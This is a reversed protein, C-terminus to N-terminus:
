GYFPIFKTRHWDDMNSFYHVCADDASAIIFYQEEFRGCHCIPKLLNKQILGISLLYDDKELGRLLNHLDFNESIWPEGEHIRRYTLLETTVAAFLHCLRDDRNFAPSTDYRHSCAPSTDYDRSCAPSTDYDHSCASSTDYDHSCSQESYDSYEDNDLDATQAMRLVRRFVEWGIRTPAPWAEMHKVPICDAFEAPTLQEHTCGTTASLGDFLLEASVDADETPSIGIYLLTLLCALIGFLDEDACGNNALHFATMVLTHLPTLQMKLGCESCHKLFIGSPEMLTWLPYFRYMCIICHCIAQISTHCFKHKWSMPVDKQGNSLLARFSESDADWRGCIDVEEGAFRTQYGLRENVIGPPTSTHSKLISIMLSDLLTHGLDNVYLERIDQFTYNSTEFISFSLAGLVNCCSTAGDLFSIALHFPYLDGFKIKEGDFQKCLQKVLDDNRGM